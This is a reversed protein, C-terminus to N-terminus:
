DNISLCCIGLLCFSELSDQPAEAHISVKPFVQTKIVLDIGQQQKEGPSSLPSLHDHPEMLRLLSGWHLLSSRSTPLINRWRQGTQVANGGQVDLGSIHLHLFSTERYRRSMGIHICRFFGKM